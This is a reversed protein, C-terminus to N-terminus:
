ETITKITIGRTAPVMRRVGRIAMCPFCHNSSTSKGRNAGTVITAQEGGEYEDKGKLRVVDGVTEKWTDQDSNWNRQLDVEIRRQGVAQHPKELQISTAAGPANIPALLKKSSATAVAIASNPGSATSDEGGHDTNKHFDRTISETQAAHLRM